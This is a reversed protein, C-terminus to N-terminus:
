AFVLGVEGFNFVQPRLVVSFGALGFFVGLGGAVLLYVHSVVHGNLYVERVGVVGEIGALRGPGAARVWFLANALCEGFM